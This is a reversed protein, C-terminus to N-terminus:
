VKVLHTCYTVFLVLFLIRLGPTLKMLTKGAARVRVSGLHAFFVTLDATYKQAKPVQERLFQV